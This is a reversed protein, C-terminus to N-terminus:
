WTEAKKFVSGGGKQSVSEAKSATQGRGYLREIRKEANCIRDTGGACAVYQAEEEENGRCGKNCRTYGTINGWEYGTINTYGTINWREYGAINTRERRCRKYGTIKTGKTNRDM